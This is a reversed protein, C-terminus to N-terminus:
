GLRQELKAVLTTLMRGIEESGCLLERTADAPIFGLSEALIVQTEAECRSGNAISLHHMFERTHYRGQGEAINSAVSVAARRWQQRLGYTEERPLGASVRDCAAVWVMAKQWVILDRYSSVGM